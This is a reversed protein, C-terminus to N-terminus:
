QSSCNFSWKLYASLPGSVELLRWRVVAATRKTPGEKQRETVAGM